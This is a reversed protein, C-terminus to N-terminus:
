NKKFIEDANEPSEKYILFPKCYNLGLKERTIVWVQKISYKVNFKDKILQRVDGISYRTDSNVIIEYLEMLQEDTLRSEAGCNSYDSKLGDIGQEDYKKVWNGVSNRHVHAYEATKSITEGLKVMRVAQIRRYLKFERQYKKMENELFKIEEKNLNENVSMTYYKDDMHM